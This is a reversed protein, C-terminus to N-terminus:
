VEIDGTTADHRTGLLREIAPLLIESVITPFVRDDYLADDLFESGERIVLIRAAPWRRRILRSADDLELPTLTSHLIAADVREAEPM